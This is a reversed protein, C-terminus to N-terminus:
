NGKYVSILNVVDEETLTKNATTKQGNVYVSKNSLSLGLQEVVDKVKPTGEGEWEITYSNGFDDRIKLKMFGEKNQNVM